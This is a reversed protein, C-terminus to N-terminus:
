EMEHHKQRFQNNDKNLTYKLALPAKGLQPCGHGKNMSGQYIYHSWEQVNLNRSHIPESFEETVIFRESTM